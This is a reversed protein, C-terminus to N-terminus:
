VCVCVCVDARCMILPCPSGRTHTLLYVSPFSFVPMCVGYCFCFTVSRLEGGTLYLFLGICRGGLQFTSISVPIGVCWQGESQLTICSAPCLICSARPGCCGHAMVGV